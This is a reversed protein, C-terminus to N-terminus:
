KAAARAAAARRGAHRQGAWGVAGLAAGIAVPATGAVRRGGIVLHDIVDTTVPRLVDAATLPHIVLPPVRLATGLGDIGLPTLLLFAMAAIASLAGALLGVPLRGGRAAIYAGAAACLLTGAALYVLVAYALYTPTEDRIAVEFHMLLAAMQAVLALVVCARLM